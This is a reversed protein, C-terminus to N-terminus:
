AFLFPLDMPDSKGEQTTILNLYSLILKPSSQMGFKVM